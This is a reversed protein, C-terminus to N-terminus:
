AAFEVSVPELERPTLDSIRWEGTADDDSEGAREAIAEDLAACVTGADLVGYDWFRLSRCVAKLMEESSYERGLLERNSHVGLLWYYLCGKERGDPDQRCYAKAIVDGSALKARLLRLRGLDVTALVSRLDGVPDAEDASLIEDIYRKAGPGKAFAEALLQKLKEM